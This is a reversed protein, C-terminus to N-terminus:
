SSFYTYKHTLMWKAGNMQLQIALTLPFLIIILEVNHLCTTCTYIRFNAMVTFYNQVIFSKIVCSFQRYTDSTKLVRKRKNKTKKQHSFRNQQQLLNERKQALIIDFIYMEVM